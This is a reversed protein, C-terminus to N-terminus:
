HVRILGAGNQRGAAILFGEGLLIAEADFPEVRFMEAGREDVGVIGTTTAAYVHGAGDLAVRRVYEGDRVRFVPELTTGELPTRRIERGDMSAGYLMGDPRLAIRSLEVFRKTRKATPDLVVAGTEAVIAAGDVAIVQVDFGISTPMGDDYNWEQLTRGDPAFVGVSAYYETPDDPSSWSMAM